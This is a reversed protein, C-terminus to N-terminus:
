YGGAELADALAEMGELHNHFEAWGEYQADVTDPLTDLFEDSPRAYGMPAIATAYAGARFDNLAYLKKRTDRSYGESHLGVDHGPDAHLTKAIVAGADCVTCRDGHITAVYKVEHYNACDPYYIAHDLELADKVALRILESPKDPLKPMIAEM